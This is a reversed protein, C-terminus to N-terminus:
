KAELQKVSKENKRKEQVLPLTFVFETGGEPRQHVEVTEGHAKVFEKVISLGLGVGSKDLGRSADAKFFREFVHKMEEDSIGKGTDKVYVEVKPKKIKTEVIISGEKDSFKIANDILNQLVRKIKEPDGNVITSEEDFVADAYLDKAMFRPEMMDLSERIVNNIDFDCRDLTMAGAQMRNLDVLDNALKSLRQTEEIVIKLYHNHKEPPITGDYIAEIFGRISTLPSRIDHSINAIFDQRTKEYKDLSEAMYNFSQALEGVEDKNKVNIRKDFNGGAIIKAAKNMEILPETIKRSSIFVMIAGILIIPLICLTMLSNVENIASKMINMPKCMFIGGILQDDIQIPYGVTLVTENFMGGVKGKVTAVNGSLVINVAEDTITQGIWKKNVDSSALSVKGDSNMFFVSIGMYKEMVEFEFDIKSSDIIGTRYLSNITENFREGQLVLQEEQDKIFYKSYIISIGAGFIAFLIVIIGLYLCMFKKLIPFKKDSFNM